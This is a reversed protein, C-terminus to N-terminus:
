LCARDRERIDDPGLRVGSYQHRSVSNLHLPGERTQAWARRLGRLSQRFARAIRIPRWRNERHWIQRLFLHLLFDPMHRLQVFGSTLGKTILYWEGVVHHFPRLTESAGWTRCGGEAVHLHILSASPEYSLAGYRQTYRLCFDSEERHAGKTFRADMGGVAIAWDRRVSLNGSGGCRTTAPYAFNLPFYLWGVDAHCSRRHRTRRLAIERSLIQGAVGPVDHGSYASVHASLFHASTFEIDDDLFLVIEGRAEILGVNRALSANAESAHFWRIRRDPQQCAAMASLAIEGQLVVLCEWDEFAQKMLGRVTDGLLASRGLSPIVISLKPTANDTANGSAEAIANHRPTV